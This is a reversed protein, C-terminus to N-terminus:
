LKVVDTLVFNGADQKFQFQYIPLQDVYEDILEIPPWQGNGKVTKATKDSLSFEIELMGKDDQDVYQAKTFYVNINYGDTLAETDKVQYYGFPQMAGGCGFTEYIFANREANYTLAGCAFQYDKKALEKDSGFLEKHKANVINYPVTECDFANEPCVTTSIFGLPTNEFAAQAHFDKDDYGNIFPTKDYNVDVYHTPMDSYLSLYKAITKEAEENTIEFKSTEPEGTPTQNQNQNQLFEYVGFGIGALALVALIIILAINSSKKPAVPAAPTVPAASAPEVPTSVIPTTPEM